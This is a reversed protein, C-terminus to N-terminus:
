SAAVCVEIEPRGLVSRPLDVMLRFSTEGGHRFVIQTKSIVVPIERM